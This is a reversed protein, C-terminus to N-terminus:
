KMALTVEFWLATLRPRARSFYSQDPLPALPGIQSYRDCSGVDAPCIFSLYSVAQGMCVYILFAKGQMARRGTGM